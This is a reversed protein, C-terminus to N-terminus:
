FTLTWEKLQRMPTLPLSHTRTIHYRFAAIKHEIPDNTFFSITTDTATPKRFIDMEFNSSKRNYTSWPFKYM